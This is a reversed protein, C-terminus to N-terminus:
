SDEGAQTLSSILPVGVWCGLPAGRPDCSVKAPQSAGPRAPGLCRREPPSSVGAAARPPTAACPPFADTRQGAPQPLAQAPEGPSSEVRSCTVSVRAQVCLCALHARPGCLHRWGGGGTVGVQLARWPRPHQVLVPWLRCGAWIWVGRCARVCVCVCVCVCERGELFKTDKLLNLSPPLSQPQSHHPSWLGHAPCNPFGCFPM